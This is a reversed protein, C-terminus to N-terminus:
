KGIKSLAPKVDVRHRDLGLSAPDEGQAIALLQCYHFAPLRYEHKFARKMEVQGLDFQEFCAPCVVAICDARAKKMSDLKESGIRLSAESDRTANGCCDTYGEYPVVKAGLAEVLGELVSPEFPDDFGMVESPRLLHCGHHVAVKLGKLPRKVSSRIKGTSITELVSAVHRARSKGSYSLGLSKLKDKASTVADGDSSAIHAAETLTAYCGNCLVLMDRNHKEGVALNRLAVTLWSELGAGKFNWPEPCCTFGEVDELKIGLAGLSKRAALEIQPHRLPIMCGLFLTYDMGDAL